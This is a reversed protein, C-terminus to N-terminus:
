PAPSKISPSAPSHHLSVPVSITPGLKATVVCRMAAILATPGWSDAMQHLGMKNKFASDMIAQHKVHAARGPANNISINNADIIPGGQAWDSSPRWIGHQIWDLASGKSIYKIRGDPM